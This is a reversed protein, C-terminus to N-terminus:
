PLRPARPDPCRARLTVGRTWYTPAPRTGTSSVLEPNGIIGLAVDLRRRQGGSLGRVRTTAKDTLGVADIVEDPDAPRPYCASRVQTAHATARWSRSPRRRRPRRSVGQAARASHNSSDHGSRATRAVGPPVDLPGFRPTLRVTSLPQRSPDAGAKRTWA